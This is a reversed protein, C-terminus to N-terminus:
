SPTPEPRVRGHAQVKEATYVDGVRVGTVSIRFGIGIAAVKRCGDDVVVRAGAPVRVTITKSRVDRTGGKVAIVVMGSRVAVVTGSASFKIKKAPKVPKGSRHGSSSGPSGPKSSAEAGSSVAMM